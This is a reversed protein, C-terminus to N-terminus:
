RGWVDIAYNYGYGRASQVRITVNNYGIGGRTIWASAFQRAGIETAVIASIRTNANGRYIYDQYQITNPRPPQFVNARQLLRDGPRVYGININNRSANPVVSANSIVALVLLLLPLAFKM